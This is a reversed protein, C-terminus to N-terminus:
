KGLSKQMDALGKKAKEAAKAAAAQMHQQVQALTDAVAQKQEPTLNAQAALKQLDATAGAYNGAKIASVASDAVPKTSADAAAFSKELKATNVGHKKGCGALMLGALCVVAVMWFMTRM